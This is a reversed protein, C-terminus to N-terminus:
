FNFNLMLVPYLKDWLQIHKGSTEGEHELNIKWGFSTHVMLTFLQVIGPFYYTVPIVIIAIFTTTKLHQIVKSVIPTFDTLFCILWHCNPFDCTLESESRPCSNLKNGTWKNVYLTLIKIIDWIVYLKTSLWHFLLPLIILRTSKVHYNSILPQVILLIVMFVIVNRVPM